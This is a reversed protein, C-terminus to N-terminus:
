EWHDDGKHNLDIYTSGGGRGNEGHGRILGSLIWSVVSIIISGIVAAWFSEVRFGSIVGSAMKLMLANIVFTFLGL